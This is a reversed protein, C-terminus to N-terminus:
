KKEYMRGAAIMDKAIEVRLNEPELVECDAGWGRIWPKMELTHSVTLTMLCGGDPLDDMTNVCPWDSERVRYAVRPSFRLKVTIREDGGMVGWARALYRYPDFTRRMEYPSNLIKAHQVREIKFERIDQRLHDFGIVYCAYGVPSPEIFYPDFVRETVEDTQPSRYILHVQRRAAWAQTLTELMKLYTPNPRRRALIAATEVIHREVPVPMASALKNLASVAQPNHKDSYAALLRAALYLALAENLNLHVPLLNFQAGEVLHWVRGEQYVPLRGSESLQVIYRRATRESVNLLDAIERTRFGEPRQRAFIQVQLLRENKTEADTIPM